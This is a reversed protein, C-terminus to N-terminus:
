LFSTFPLSISIYISTTPVKSRLLEELQEVLKQYGDELMTTNIFQLLKEIMKHSFDEFHEQAWQKLVNSVRLQSSILEVLLFMSLFYSPAPTLTLPTSSSARPHVQIMARQAYAPSDPPVRYRIFMILKEGCFIIYYQFHFLSFLFFFFFFFLCLLPM